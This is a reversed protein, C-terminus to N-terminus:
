EKCQGSVKITLKLNQMTGDRRQIRLTHTEDQCPCTEFNGDDGVGARGDVWYARVKSVHWYVRTCNGAQISQDDAWFLVNGSPLTRSPPTVTPIPTPSPTPTWTQIPTLTPTIAGVSLPTWTPTPTFTPSSTPTPTSTPAGPVQVAAGEVTVSVTAPNSAAGTTDYTTVQLAYVGEEEPHWVQSVELFSAGPQPSGDRRYPEGNVSLIVEAVGERAYAHSMVLVSSGVSVNAGEQPSDIWAHPMVGEGGCSLTGGMLALLALLLILKRLIRQRKVKARRPPPREGPSPQDIL